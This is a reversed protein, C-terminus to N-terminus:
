NRRAASATVVARCDPSLKEVNDMMCQRIRGGGPSVSSCLKDYDARCVQRAKAGNKAGNKAGDQAFAPGTIVSGTMALSLAVISLSLSRTM